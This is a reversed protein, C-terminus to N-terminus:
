VRTPTRAFVCEMKFVDARKPISAKRLQGEQPQSM